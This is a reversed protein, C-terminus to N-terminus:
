SCGWLVPLLRRLVVATFVLFSVAVFIGISSLVLYMIWESIDKM